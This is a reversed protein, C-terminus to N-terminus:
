IQVYQFLLTQGAEPASVENTLTLITNNEGSLTYDINPRYVTPFQTGMLMAKLIGKNAPVTFIKTVGDLEDSLDDIKVLDLVSSNVELTVEVNYSPLTVEIQNVVNQVNVVYPSEVSEDALEVSVNYSPVRADINLQQSQITLDIDSM